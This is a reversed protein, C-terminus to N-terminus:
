IFAYSSRDKIAIYDIELWTALPAYFISGHYNRLIKKATQDSERPYEKISKPLIVPMGIVILDTPRFQEGLTSALYISVQKDSAKAIVWGSRCGDIGIYNSTM